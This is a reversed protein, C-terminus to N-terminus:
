PTSEQNLYKRWEGSEATRKIYDARFNMVKRMRRHLLLADLAAWRVRLPKSVLFRGDDSDSGRGEAPVHLCAWFPHASGRLSRRFLRAPRDFMTIETTLSFRMGFFRASWTTRDDPGALGTTRGAVAKGCIPRASDAHLDVSRALDFCREPPALILTEARLIIVAM